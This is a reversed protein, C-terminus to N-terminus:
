PIGHEKAESKEIAKLQKPDIQEELAM